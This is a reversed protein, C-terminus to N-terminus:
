RLRDAEDRVQGCRPVSLACRGQAQGDLNSGSRGRLDPLLSDQHRRGTGARSASALGGIRDPVRVRGGKRCCLHRAGRRGLGQACTWSISNMTRRLAASLGASTAGPQGCYRVRLGAAVTGDAGLEFTAARMVLNAAADGEPITVLRGGEPAIVLASKGVLYSALAGTALHEYTVDLTLLKGFTGADVLGARAWAPIEVDPSM